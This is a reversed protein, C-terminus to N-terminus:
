CFYNCYSCIIYGVNGLSNLAYKKINNAELLIERSLKEPMIHEPKFGISILQKGILKKPCCHYSGMYWFLEIYKALSGSFDITDYLDEM